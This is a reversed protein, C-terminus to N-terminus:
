LKGPYYKGHRRTVLEKNEMEGLVMQVFEEDPEELVEQAERFTIPTTEVRGLLIGMSQSIEWENKLKRILPSNVKYEDKLELLRSYLKAVWEWSQPQQRAEQEIKAWDIGMLVLKSMDELDAPRSTISKFLFIDEVSSVYVTLNNGYELPEARQKMTESYTLCGCVKKVFIDFRTKDEKVLVTMTELDLYDQALEKESQFGAKVAASIFAKAMEPTSFVIDVDKTSFKANHKIMALGGLLFAEIKENLNNSINQLAMDLEKEDFEKKEVM